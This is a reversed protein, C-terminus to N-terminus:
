TKDIEITTSTGQKNSIIDLSASLYDVRSQINKLGIGKKDIANIDFGKGNDEVTIQMTKNRYSLQINIETANSHKVSNSVLEQIIRFINIEEKKSFTFTDGLHQFNISQAHATDSKECYEETVELLNFNELSPPVLNHSIARVHNCSDDIMNIVEAIEKNKMELISSLKYKIASLDGNVGDHLEQAIRIREKEEGEILTELTKIQHERKLTVIEQNKRKENQKFLFWLLTSAIFLFLILVILYNNQTKEREIENKNQEIELQQRIIESDKKESEHKVDADALMARNKAQYISEQQTVYVLMLKNAKKYNKRKSEVEAWSKYAIVALDSDRKQNYLSKFKEFYIVSKSYNGKKLEHEALLVYSAVIDHKKKRKLALRNAILLSKEAADFMKLDDYLKGIMINIEFCTEASKTKECIDLGRELYVKASDLKNEEICYYALQRLTAAEVRYDNVKKSSLNALKLYKKSQALFGADAYTIAHNFYLLSLEADNGKVLEIAKLNYHLQKNFNNSNEYTISYNTLVSSRLIIDEKQDLTLLAKDFFYRASDINSLDSQIIGHINYIKALRYNNKKLSLNLAKTAYIKSSDVDIYLYSKALSIYTSVNSTDNSVINALNQKLSDLHTYNQGFTCQSFIILLISFKLKM